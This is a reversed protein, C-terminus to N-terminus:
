QRLLEGRLGLGRLRRALALGASRDSVAATTVRWLLRGKLRWPIVRVVIGRGRVRRALRLADAHYAFVGLQVAWQSRAQPRRAPRTRTVAPRRAPPAKRAPQARTRTVRRTPVTRARRVTARAPVPSPEAHRRPPVKASGAVPPRPTAANRAPAAPAIGAREAQGPGHAVAATVAAREGAGAGLPLTYSRVPAHGAAPRPALAATLRPPGSLLEPVLLVILAVLIIAGTVREKVARLIGRAM